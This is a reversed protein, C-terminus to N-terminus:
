STEWGKKNSTWGRHIFFTMWAQAIEKACPHVGWLGISSLKWAWPFRDHLGALVCMWVRFASSIRERGKRESQMRMGKAFIRRLHSWWRLASAVLLVSQMIAIAISTGSMRQCEYLDRYEWCSHHPLIQIGHSWNRLLNPFLGRPGETITCPTLTQLHKRADNYRFSYAFLHPLFPLPSNSHRLIPELTFPLAPFSNPKHPKCM